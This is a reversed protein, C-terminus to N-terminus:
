TKTKTVDSFKKSKNVKNRNSAIEEQSEIRASDTAARQQMKAFEVMLEAQDENTKRQLEQQKLALEQMRIQVLPDSMPDNGQPM